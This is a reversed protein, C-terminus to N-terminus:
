LDNLDLELYFLASIAIILENCLCLYRSYPIDRKQGTGGSRYFVVEGERWISAHHSGNRLTSDLNKVFANFEQRHAFPNAMKAKEVDNIYKNWTMSEFQDYRRDSLINNIGALVPFHSTLTEFAQGYFLKVLDFNKSGVIINDVDDDEIRVYFAMQSLEQRVKFYDSFISLYRTFNEKQNNKHWDALSAVQEPNTRRAESFLNKAPLYIKEFKPYFLSDFFNYIVAKYDNLRTQPFFKQRQSEYDHILRRLKKDDGRNQKILIIGKVLGWLFTANPLDFQQAVDQHRGPVKKMYPLINQIYMSAFLFPNHLDKENFAFNPHLNILTGNELDESAAAANEDPVIWARPADTKVIISIPVGCGQCDFSHTQHKETGVGVRVIYEDSCTKCAIRGRIVM